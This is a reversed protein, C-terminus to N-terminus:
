PSLDEPDVPLTLDVDVAYLHPRLREHADLLHLGSRLLQCLVGDITETPVGYYLFNVPMGNAMMVVSRQRREGAQQIVFTFRQAVVGETKPDVISSSTVVAPHGGVMATPAGVRSNLWTSLESFEDTKSSGSALRLEEVESEILWRELDEGTFASRGVVGLVLDVRARLRRPLSAFNVAELIGHAGDMEGAVKPDVGCIQRPGHSLRPLLSAVLREGVVGRSGVVLCQRRSLTRGMAHLINEVANVVTAVVDKAETQVKYESMAISIAPALLAGCRREVEAMREYGSRTHEISGIFVGALADRVLRTDSVSPDYPHLLAEVTAGEVGARNLLPSLYGGDEIVLCREGSAAARELQRFFQLAAVTRMSEVYNRTSAALANVIQEKGTLRAYRSSLRYQGEVTGPAPENTLALCHLEEAPVARLASLYEEPTDGAYVVFLTELDRCGLARLAAIVGLVEATLHHILFVRVGSLPQGQSRAVFASTEGMSRLYDELTPTERQAGAGSSAPLFVAVSVDGLTVVDGAKLRARDVRKGQVFTGNRSALDTVWVGDEAHEFRAHQRSLASSEIPIDVTPSRGIVRVMGEVLVEVFRRGGAHFHLVAEGPGLAAGMAVADMSLTVTEGQQHKM